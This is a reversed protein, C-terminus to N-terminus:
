SPQKIHTSVEQAMSYNPTTQASVERDHALVPLRDQLLGGGPRYRSLRSRCSDKVRGRYSASHFKAPPVRAGEICIGRYGICRAEREERGM